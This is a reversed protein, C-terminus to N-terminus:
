DIKLSATSGYKKKISRATEEEGFQQATKSTGDSNYGYPSTPTAKDKKDTPTSSNFLPQTKINDKSDKFLAYPTKNADYIIQSYKFDSKDTHTKEITDGAYLIDSDSYSGVDVGKKTLYEKMTKVKASNEATKDAQNKENQAKSDNYTNEMVTVQKDKTDLERNQLDLSAKTKQEDKNQKDIESLSQGLYAFAKGEGGISQLISSDFRPKTDHWM